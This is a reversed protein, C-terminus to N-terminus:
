DNNGEKENVFELLNQLVNEIEANISSCEMQWWGWGQPKSLVFKFEGYTNTVIVKLDGSLLYIKDPNSTGEVELWNYMNSDKIVHEVQSLEDSVHNQKKRKSSPKKDYDWTPNYPMTGMDMGRGVMKERNQIQNLADADSGMAERIIRRLQQRTIKMQLEGITSVIGGYTTQHM